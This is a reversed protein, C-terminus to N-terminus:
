NDVYYVRAFFQWTNHYTGQDDMLHLKLAGEELNAAAGTTDAITWRAHHNTPNYKWNFICTMDNSFSTIYTKDFLINLGSLNMSYPSCINTTTTLVASSGLQTTAPSKPQYTIIVRSACSYANSTNHVIKMCLNVHTVRITDGTRTIPTLGQAIGDILDAGLGLTSAFTGTTAIDLFKSETNLGLKNKLIRLGYKSITSIGKDIYGGVTKGKAKYSKKYKKYKKSRDVKSAIFVM